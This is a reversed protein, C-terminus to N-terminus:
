APSIKGEPFKSFSGSDKLDDIVRSYAELVAIQNPNHDPSRFNIHAVNQRYTFFLEELDKFLDQTNANTSRFV